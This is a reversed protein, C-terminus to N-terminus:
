DANSRQAFVSSTACLMGVPLSAASSGRRMDIANLMAAKKDPDTEAMLRCWFVDM